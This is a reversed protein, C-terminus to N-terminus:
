FKPKKFTVLLNDFHIYRPIGNIGYRWKQLFIFDIILFFIYAPLSHFSKMKCSYSCTLCSLIPVSTWNVYPEIARTEELWILWTITFNTSFHLDSILLVHVHHTEINYWIEYKMKVSHLAQIQQRQGEKWIENLWSTCTCTYLICLPIM